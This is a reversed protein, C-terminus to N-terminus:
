LNCERIIQHKQKSIQDEIEDLESVTKLSKAISM